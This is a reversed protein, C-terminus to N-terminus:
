LLISAKFMGCEKCTEACFSKVKTEKNELSFITACKKAEDSDGLAGELTSNCKKALESCNTKLKKFKEKKTLM